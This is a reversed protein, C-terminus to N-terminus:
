AIHTHWARTMCSQLSCALRKSLQAWSGAPVSRYAYVALSGVCLVYARIHFKHGGVLLPKDIYRRRQM